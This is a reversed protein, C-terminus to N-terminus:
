KPDEVDEIKIEKRSGTAVFKLYGIIDALEQSTYDASTPPHKWKHDTTMSTVDKSAFKRLEPPNKGLDWIQLEEGQKQKQIGPFSEDASTKVQQVYATSQMQITKVLGHSGVVASLQKLDPGVATGVGEITHCTGCAVGKPSKLFLEKGREAQAPAQGYLVGIAAILAVTFFGTLKM